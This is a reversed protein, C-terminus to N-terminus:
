GVLSIDCEWLYLRAFCCNLSNPSGSFKRPYGFEIQRFGRNGTIWNDALHCTIHHCTAPPHASRHQCIRFWQRHRCSNILCWRRRLLLKLFPAVLSHEQSVRNEVVYLEGMYVWFTYMPYQIPNQATTTFSVMVFRLYGSAVQRQVVLHTVLVPLQSCSCAQPSMHWSTDAFLGKKRASTRQDKSSIATCLRRTLPIGVGRFFILEDTPIIVNGIIHFFLIWTGFWWGTKPYRLSECMIQILSKGRLMSGVPKAGSKHGAPTWETGKKEISQCLLLCRPFLDFSSIFVSVSYRWKAMCPEATMNWLDTNLHHNISLKDLHKGNVWPTEELDCSYM